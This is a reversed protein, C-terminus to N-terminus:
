FVFGFVAAGFRAKFSFDFVFIFYVVAMHRGNLRLCHFSFGDLTQRVPLRMGLRGFGFYVFRLAFEFGSGLRNLRFGSLGFRNLGLRLGFIDHVIQKLRVVRRGAAAKDTIQM